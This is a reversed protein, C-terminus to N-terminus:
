PYGASIIDIAGPYENPMVGKEVLLKKTLKKIDDFIPVYPWHKRLVKQCFTEIECFAVTEIDAWDAALSIGGIGSFLDIMKM